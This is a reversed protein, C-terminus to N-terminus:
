RFANFGPYNTKVIEHCQPDKAMVEAFYEEGSELMDWDFNRLEPIIKKKLSEHYKELALARYDEDDWWQEDKMLTRLADYEEYFNDLYWQSPEPLQFELQHVLFWDCRSDIPYNATVLIKTPGKCSGDPNKGEVCAYGISESYFLFLGLGAVIAIIGIVILLRTKM